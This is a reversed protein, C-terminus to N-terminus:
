QGMVPLRALSKDFPTPRPSVRLRSFLNTYAWQLHAMEHVLKGLFVKEPRAAPVPTSSTIVSIPANKAKVYTMIASYDINITSLGNWYVYTSVEESLVPRSVKKLSDIFQASLGPNSNIIQNLFASYPTYTDAIYRTLESNRTDINRFCGQEAETLQRVLTFGENLIVNKNNAINPPNLRISLWQSEEEITRIGAQANGLTREQNDANTGLSKYGINFSVPIRATMNADSTHFFHLLNLLSTDRNGRIRQMERLAYDVWTTRIDRERIIVSDEIVPSSFNGRPLRPAERPPLPMEILLSLGNIGETPKSVYINPNAYFSDLSLFFSDSPNQRINGFNWNCGPILTERANGNITDRRFLQVQITNGIRFPLECNGAAGVTERNRYVKRKPRNNVKVRFVHRNQPLGKLLVFALETILVTTDKKDCVKVTLNNLGDAARRYIDTVKHQGNLDFPIRNLAWRLKFFVTDPVTM